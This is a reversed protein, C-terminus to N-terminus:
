ESRFNFDVTPPRTDQDFLEASDIRAPEAFRVAQERKALKALDIAGQRYNSAETGSSRALRECVCVPRGNTAIWRRWSLGRHVYSVGCVGVPGHLVETIPEPVIATAWVM